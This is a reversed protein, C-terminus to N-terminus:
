TNRWNQGGDTSSQLESLNGPNIRWAWNENVFQVYYKRYQPGDDAKVVDELSSYCIRKWVNGRDVTRLLCPGLIWGNNADVFQIRFNPYSNPDHARAASQCDLIVSLGFLIAFLVGLRILAFMFSSWKMTVARIAFFNSCIIKNSNLSRLGSKKDFR